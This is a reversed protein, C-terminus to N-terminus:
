GVMAPHHQKGSWRAHSGPPHIEAIEFKQNERQRLHDVFSPKTKKAPVQDEGADRVTKRNM